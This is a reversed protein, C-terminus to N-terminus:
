FIGIPYTDANDHKVRMFIKMFFMLNVGLFYYKSAGLNPPFFSYNGLTLELSFLEQAGECDDRSASLCCKVRFELRIHWQKFKDSNEPDKGSM